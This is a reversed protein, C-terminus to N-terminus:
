LPAAEGTLCWRGAGLVDILRHVVHPRVAMRREVWGRRVQATYPYPKGVRPGVARLFPVALRGGVDDAMISPNPGALIGKVFLPGVESLPM